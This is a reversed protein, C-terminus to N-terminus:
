KDVLITRETSYTDFEETQGRIGRSFNQTGKKHSKDWHSRRIKNQLM